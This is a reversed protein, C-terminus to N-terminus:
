KFRFSEVDVRLFKRAKEARYSSLETFVELFSASKSKLSLPSKLVVCSTRPKPIEGDVHHRISSTELDSRPFINISWELRAAPSSTLKQANKEKLLRANSNGSYWTWEFRNLRIELSSKSFPKVYSSKTACRVYRGVTCRSLILPVYPDAAERQEGCILKRGDLTKAVMAWPDQWSTSEVWTLHAM